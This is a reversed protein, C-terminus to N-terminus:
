AKKSYSHRSELEQGTSKIEWKKRSLFTDEEKLIGSASGVNRNSAGGSSSGANSNLVGSGSSANGNLAGGSASGPNEDVREGTLGKGSASSANGNFGEGTSGQGSASGANGNSSEGAQILEISAEVPAKVLVFDLMRLLALVLM